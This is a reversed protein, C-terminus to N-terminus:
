KVRELQDSWEVTAYEDELVGAGERLVKTRGTAVDAFRWVEDIARQAVEAETIFAGTAPDVFERDLSATIARNVASRVEDKRWATTSKKRGPQWWVGDVELPGDLDAAISQGLITALQALRGRQGGADTLATYLRIRDAVNGTGAVLFSELLDLAAALASRAEDADVPDFGAHALEAATSPPAHRGELDVLSDTADPDPHYDDTDMASMM